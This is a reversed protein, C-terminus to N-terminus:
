NMTALVLMANNLLLSESRRVDPCDSTESHAASGRMPDGMEPNSTAPDVHNLIHKALITGRINKLDNSSCQNKVAGAGGCVGKQQDYVYQLILYLLLIFVNKLL